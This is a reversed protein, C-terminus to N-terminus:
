LCISVEGAHKRFFPKHRQNDGVFLNSVEVMYIGGALEIGQPCASAHPPQAQGRGHNFAPLDQGAKVFTFYVLHHRMTVTAVCKTHLGCVFFIFSM